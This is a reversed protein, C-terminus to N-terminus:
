VKTKLPFTSTGTCNIPSITSRCTWPSSPGIKHLYNTLKAEYKFPMPVYRGTSTSLLSSTPVWSENSGHYYAQTQRDPYTITSFRKSMIMSRSYPVYGTVISISVEARQNTDSSDTQGIPAPRVTTTMGVSWESANSRHQTGFKLESFTYLTDQTPDEVEVKFHECFVQDM